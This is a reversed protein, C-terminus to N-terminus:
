CYLNDMLLFIESFYCWIFSLRNCRNRSKNEKKSAVVLDSIQEYEAKSLALSNVNANFKVIKKSVHQIGM